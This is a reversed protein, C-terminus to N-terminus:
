KSQTYEFTFVKAFNNKKVIDFGHFFKEDTTKYLLCSNKLNKPILVPNNFESDQYIGTGASYEIDDNNGDLFYILNFTDKKKDVIGDQHPILYSNEKKVSIVFSKFQVKANNNEDSNLFSNFLNEFKESKIFKFLDYYIPDFYKDILENKNRGNVFSAFIFFNKLPNKTHKFNYFEPFNDKLANYTNQDFFNEIFICGNKKFNDLINNNKNEFNKIKFELNFNMNRKKRNTLKLINQKFNFISWKFVFYKSFIFRIIKYILSKYDLPYYQGYTHRLCKKLEIKSFNKAM